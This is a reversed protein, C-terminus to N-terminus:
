CATESQLGSFSDCFSLIWERQKKSTLTRGHEIARLALLGFVAETALAVGPERGDPRAELAVDGQLEQGLRRITQEEVVPRKTRDVRPLLLVEDSYTLKSCFKLNFM